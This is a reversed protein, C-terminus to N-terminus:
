AATVEEYEFSISNLWVIGYCTNSTGNRPGSNIVRFKTTGTAAQYITYLSPYAPDSLDQTITQHIMSEDSPLETVLTGAMSGTPMQSGFAINTLYIGTQNVAIAIQPSSSTTATNEATIAFYPGWSHTASKKIWFDVTVKTIKYNTAPFTISFLANTILLDSAATLVRSGDSLVEDDGLKMETFQNAKTLQIDDIRSIMPNAAKMGQLYAWASAAAATGRITPDIKTFDLKLVNGSVTPTSVNTMTAANMGRLTLAM